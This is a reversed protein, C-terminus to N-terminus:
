NLSTGVAVSVKDDYALLAHGLIGTIMRDLTYIFRLQILTVVHIKCASSRRRFFDRGKGFIRLRRNRERTARAHTRM